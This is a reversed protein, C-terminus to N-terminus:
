KFMEQTIARIVGDMGIAQGTTTRAWVCLGAFDKDVREGKAILKDALWSSVAWHEYVEWQYPAINFESGVAEASELAFGSTATSENRWNEPGGSHGVNRWGAQRAAEEYDNVPSALEFAQEVLRVLDSPPAVRTGYSNALTALTAVLSSLCCHIERQVMRDAEHQLDTETLIPM